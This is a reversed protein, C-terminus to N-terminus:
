LGTSGKQLESILRQYEEYPIQSHWKGSAMGIGIVLYFLIILILPYLSPKVIRIKKGTRVSLDLAGESPCHSVCTM